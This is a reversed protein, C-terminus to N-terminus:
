GMLLRGHLLKTRMRQTRYAMLVVCELATSITGRSETEVGTEATRNETCTARFRSASNQKYNGLHIMFTEGSGGMTEELDWERSRAAVRM